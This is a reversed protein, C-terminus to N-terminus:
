EQRGMIPPIWAVHNLHPINSIPTHRYKSIQDTQPTSTPSKGMKKNIKGCYFNSWGISNQEEIAAKLTGSPTSSMTSIDFQHTDTQISQQLAKIIIEQIGPHLKNKKMNHKISLIMTYRVKKRRENTCSSIHNNNEIENCSPCIKGHNRDQQNLKQNTPLIRNIFKQIRTRDNM